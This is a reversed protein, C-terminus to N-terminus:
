IRLNCCDNPNKNVNNKWYEYAESEDECISLEKFGKIRSLYEKKKELPLHNYGSQKLTYESFDINFWKRIWSNVRLFEILIKDCKIKSLIDTDIFKSIYPSLRVSVDFGNNQLTEIAQIRQSPLSAKEYKLKKYMTDDTCTLTVQIHALKKDMLELYEKDAVIHSKTVILYNINNENLCKITEYTVRATKEIPQFCDTMGGLRLTTIGDM